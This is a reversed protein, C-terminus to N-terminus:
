EEPRKTVSGWRFKTKPVDEEEELRPLEAARDGSELQQLIELTREYNSLVDDPMNDESTRSYINYMVLHKVWRVVAKPRAAGTLAFITDVDYRQFLFSRVEDIAEEEAEDLISDDDDIIQNIEEERKNTIYDPKTIFTSM